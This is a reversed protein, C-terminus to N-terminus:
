APNRLLDGLERKPGQDETLKYLWTGSMKLTVCTRKRGGEKNRASVKKAEDQRSIKKERKGGQGAADIRFYFYYGPLAKRVRMEEKEWKETGDTRKLKGFPFEKEINPILGKKRGGRMAGIRRTRPFKSSVEKPGELNVFPYGGKASRRSRLNGEAKIVWPRKKPPPPTTREQVGGTDRQTRV